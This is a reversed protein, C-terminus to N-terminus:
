QKRITDTVNLNKKLAYDYLRLMYEDCLVDPSHCDSSVVVEANYKQCLEILLDTPYRFGHSRIGNANLELAVGCDVATRVTREFAAAIKKTMTPRRYFILDPHALIAFYGSKLGLEVSKFYATINDEGVGDFFSDCHKGNYIFEHQGMVLYDLKDLLKKYYDAYGEFYEIEVASLIEIRGGFLARAEDFQPLYRTQLTQLNIYPSYSAIPAACHDSIGLTDLGCHVANEVYDKVTGGAHGCLFNHTHYNSKIKINEYDDTLKTFDSLM